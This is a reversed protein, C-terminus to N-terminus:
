DEKKQELEAEIVKYHVAHPRPVIPRGREIGWLKTFAAGYYLILSSYFVFLLLLVISASTGYLTTINSYTLLWHLIFKGFTFLIATVFAGGFAVSWDPKGDPLFRFVMTFWVTVVVISIVYSLVTNFLVSLLPSLEFVYRGIFAQLGEAVIGIVFLMGAVLIVFVSQARSGLSRALNQKEMRRMKWVQNLSSKIIKFLTTAVFLLFIFGGLTIYWNQALSRLAQLVGVLQRVTEPGFMGSLNRFMEERIVKPDLFLKLVQILIVMIPPLAFTTFFATAGAMRLPDNKLLEALSDRFLRAFRVVASRIRAIM